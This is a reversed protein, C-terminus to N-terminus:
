KAPTSEQTAPRGVAAAIKAEDRPTVGLSEILQGTDALLRYRAFLEIYQADVYNSRSTYLENESDLVDLLTRQGISFQKAYADRTLATADAQSKIKPLRDIATEMANWSLRTSEEIQRRTRNQVETAEQTQIRTESIRAQDSGGHYLNYRLRLMAYADNNKYDVGDLNRNWSTGLELDVRPKLASEAARTQAKTAEVDAMASRLIPHNDYATQVATDVDAPIPDPAAPKSLDVPKEGVVRLFNITSERLNAQASALNAQSLSLRAQIQELDAKRGVGSDARLKIQQYTREHAALNDQILDLQEQRRLVDLYTEIARLATTQSTGAVKYAASEMRATHREVESSVGAGDYLMQSLTLSSETRTLTRHGPRTSINESWEGGIGLGLDVKPLYGGRAQRINQDTELRRNADILVDPNTRLTQEVADHLSQASAPQYAILAGAVASVIVSLKLNMM